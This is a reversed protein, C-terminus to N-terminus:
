QIEAGFMAADESNANIANAEDWAAYSPYVVAVTHSASSEGGSIVQRLIAYGRNKKGTESDWYKTMSGLFAQADHVDLIYVVGVPIEPEAHNDAHAAYGFVTILLSVILSALKTM